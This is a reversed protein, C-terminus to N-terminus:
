VAHIPTGSLFLHRSEEGSAAATEEWERSSM